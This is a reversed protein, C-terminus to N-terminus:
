FLGPLDSGEREEDTEYEEVIVSTDVGDDTIDIEASRVKFRVRRKNRSNRHVAGPRPAPHDSQGGRKVYSQTTIHELFPASWKIATSSRTCQGALQSAEYDLTNALLRFISHPREGSFLLIWFMEKLGTFLLTDRNPCFYIGNKSSVETFRYLQV